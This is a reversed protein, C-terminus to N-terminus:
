PRWEHGVRANSMPVPQGDASLAVYVRQVCNRRGGCLALIEDVFHKTLLECSRTVHKTESFLREVDRNDLLFGDSDLGTEDAEIEALWHYTITPTEFLGCYITGNQVRATFQGSREMRIRPQAM